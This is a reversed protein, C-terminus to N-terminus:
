AVSYKELHAQVQERVILGYEVSPMYVNRHRMLLTTHIPLKDRLRAAIKENFAQDFLPAARQNTENLKTVVMQM